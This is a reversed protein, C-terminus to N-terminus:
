VVGHINIHYRKLIKVSEAMEELSQSKKMEKLSEPNVSEFGVYVIRCGAKYMLDILEADKAIDVRVQTSWTFKFNEWIKFYKQQKKSDKDM